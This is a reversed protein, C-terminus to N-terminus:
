LPDFFNGLLSDPTSAEMELAQRYAKLAVKNQGLMRLQKALEAQHEATRNASLAKECLAKTHQLINPNRGSIRSFLEAM